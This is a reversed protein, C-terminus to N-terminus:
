AGTNYYGPIESNHVNQRNYAYASSLSMTILYNYCVTFLIAQLNYYVYNQVEEAPICILITMKKLDTVM